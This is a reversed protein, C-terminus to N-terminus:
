EMYPTGFNGQKNRVCFWAKNTLLGMASESNVIVIIGINNNPALRVYM